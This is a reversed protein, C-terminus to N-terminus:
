LIDDLNLTPIYPIGSMGGSMYLTDLRTYKDLDSYAAVSEINTNGEKKNVLCLQDPQMIMKDMLKVEHTTFILQSNHPNLKKSYFIRLLFHTLLPHLSNGLEDIIFIKPQKGDQLSLLWYGLWALFQQTGNSEELFFDFEPANKRMSHYTKIAIEIDEGDLQTYPYVNTNSKIKKIGKALEIIRIEKIDLGAQNCINLLLKKNDPKAKIFTVLSDFDFQIGPATHISVKLQSEFWQYIHHLVEIKKVYQPNAPNNAAYLFLQEDATSNRYYQADGQQFFNDPEWINANSNLDFYRNFIINQTDNDPHESLKEETIKEKNHAFTYNYAIGNILIDFSYKIPLQKNTDDNKNYNFFPKLDLQVHTRKSGEVVLKRSDDIAKLFNTKGSANAGFLAISKLLAIGYQPVAFTNNLTHADNNAIASFDIKDISRSNSVTFRILM